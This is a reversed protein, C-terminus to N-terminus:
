WNTGHRICFSEIEREKRDIQSDVEIIQQILRPQSNELAKSSLSIVEECLSGMRIMEVHLQDLQQDFQTRM